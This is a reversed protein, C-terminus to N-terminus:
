AESDEEVEYFIFGENSFIRLPNINEEIKDVELSFSEDDLHYLQPEKTLIDKVKTKAKETAELSSSSWVYVNKYFGVNRFEGEINWGVGTGHLTIGFTKM